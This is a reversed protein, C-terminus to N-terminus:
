YTYWFKMEVDWQNPMGKKKTLKIQDCKLGVWMSQIYSLFSATQTIGVAKLTVKASQTNKGAGGMGGVTFDCSASPITCKNATRNIANAFTFEGSVAKDKSLDLRGSDYLLIDDIHLQGQVCLNCDSELNRKAEPLYMLRVLLPWISLLIPALLYYTMPNRYIERM